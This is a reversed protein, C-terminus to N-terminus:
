YASYLFLHIIYAYLYLLSIASGLQLWSPWIEDLWLLIYM